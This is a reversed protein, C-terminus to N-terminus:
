CPVAKPRTLKENMFRNNLTFLTTKEGSLAEAQFVQNALQHGLSLFDSIRHDKANFVCVGRILDALTDSLGQFGGRRQHVLFDRTEIEDRVDEM